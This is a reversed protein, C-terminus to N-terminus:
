ESSVPVRVSGPALSTALLSWHDEWGQRCCRKYAIILGCQKKKLTLAIIWWWTMKGAVFTNAKTKYCSYVTRSHLSWLCWWKVFNITQSHKKWLSIRFEALSPFQGSKLLSASVLAWVGPDLDSEAVRLSFLVSPWRNLMYSSHWIDCAQTVSMNHLEHLIQWSWARFMSRCCCWTPVSVHAATILAPSFSQFLLRAAGTSSREQYLAM